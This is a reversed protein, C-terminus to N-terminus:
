SNIPQLRALLVALIEFKIFTARDAHGDRVRQASKYYFPQSPGVHEVARACDARNPPQSPPQEHVVRGGLMRVYGLAFQHGDVAAEVVDHGGDLYTGRTITRKQHRKVTKRSLRFM